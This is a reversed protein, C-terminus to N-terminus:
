CATESIRTTSLVENKGTQLKFCPKTHKHIHVSHIFSNFQLHFEAKSSKQIDFDSLSIFDFHHGHRSRVLRMLLVYSYIVLFHRTYVNCYISRWNYSKVNKHKTTFVTHGYGLILLRTWSASTTKFSPCMCKWHKLNSFNADDQSKTKHAEWILYIRIVNLM